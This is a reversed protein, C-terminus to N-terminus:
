RRRQEGALQLHLAQRQFLQVDDGFRRSFRRDRRLFQPQRQGDLHRLETDGRQVVAVHQADAIEGAAEGAVTALVPQLCQM